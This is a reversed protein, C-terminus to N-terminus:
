DDTREEVQALLNEVRQVLAQQVAALHQHAADPGARDLEHAISLWLERIEAPTTPLQGAVLDTFSTEQSRPM